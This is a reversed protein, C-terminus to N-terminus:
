LEFASRNTLPAPIYCLFGFLGCFYESIKRRSALGEGLGGPLWDFLSIGDDHRFIQLLGRVLRCFSQRAAMARAAPPCFGAKPCIDPSAVFTWITPVWQRPKVQCRCFILPTLTTFKIVQKVKCRRFPLRFARFKHKQFGVISGSHVFV